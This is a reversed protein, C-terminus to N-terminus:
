NIEKIVKVLSDQELKNIIKKIKSKIEKFSQNIPYIFNFGHKEKKLTTFLIEKKKLLGGTKVKRYSIYLFTFGLYNFQIKQDNMKSYNIINIKSSDFEFEFFSTKITDLLINLEIFQTSCFNECKSGGGFRALYNGIM